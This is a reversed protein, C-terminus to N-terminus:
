LPNNLVIKTEFEKTALLLKFTPPKSSRLLIFKSVSGVLPDFLNIFDFSKNTLNELISAFITERMLLMFKDLIPSAFMPNPFLSIRALTTASSFPLLLLLVRIELNSLAFLPM